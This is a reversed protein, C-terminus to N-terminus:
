SATSCQLQCNHSMAEKWGSGTSMEDEGQEGIVCVRRGLGISEFCKYYMAIEIFGFADMELCEVKLFCVTEM